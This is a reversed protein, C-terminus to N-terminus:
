AQPRGEAKARAKAERRARRAERSAAELARWRAVAEVDPHWHEAAYSGPPYPNKGNPAELTDEWPRLQLEAHLEWMLRRHENCGECRLGSPDLDDPCTCELRQMQDFLEIAQPTIRPRRPQRRTPTRNTPM